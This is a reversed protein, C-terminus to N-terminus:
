KRILFANPLYRSTGSASSPSNLYEGDYYMVTSSGGDLSCANVAGFDLMVDRIDAFSGGISRLQRGDICLMLVAGDERQGIATRPNIGSEMYSGYEPEGNVILAPGFSVCDRINDAAATEATYYGVHLVNNEDFAASAGSDVWHYVEGEVITLGEPLGGSGGGDEDIFGGGNIGGLADYRHVLDELLMGNGGYFGPFGAFVRSPDLVIIMTGQFGKKMVDVLIIGDGDEDPPLDGNPLPGTIVPRGSASPEGYLCDEISGATLGAESDHLLIRFTRTVEVPGIPQIVSASARIYALYFGPDVEFVDLLESGYYIFNSNHSYSGIMLVQYFRRDLAGGQEIYPLVGYYGSVSDMSGASFHLYAQVFADLFSAFRQQDAPDSSQLPMAGAASDLLFLAGEYDGRRLRTQIVQRIMSDRQAEADRYSGLQTFLMVAAESEGSASLSLAQQYIQERAADARAAADLVNAASSFQDAAELYAGDAELLCAECYVKLSSSEEYSGLATFIDRAASYQAHDILMRGRDYLTSLCDSARQRSDLFGSLADYLDAAQTLSLLATGSDEADLASRGIAEAERGEYYQMMEPADRFSGLASFASRAAEYDGNEAALAARCYMQLRSADEYSGLAQFAGAAEEYRGQELLSEATQYDKELSSSCGALLMLTCLIPLIIIKKLKTRHTM